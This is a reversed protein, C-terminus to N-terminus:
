DFITDDVMGGSKGRSSSGSSSGSSIAGGKGCPMRLIVHAMFYYIIYLGSFVVAIVTYLVRLPTGHNANCNWCLYGAIIALLINLIALIIGSKGTASGGGGQFRETLNDDTYRNLKDRLKDILFSEILM